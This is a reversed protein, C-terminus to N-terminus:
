SDGDLYQPLDRAGHLFRIVDIDDGSVEYFIV